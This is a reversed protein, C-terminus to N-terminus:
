AADKLRKREARESNTKVQHCAQCLPQLGTSPCFLRTLYGDWGEFAKPVSGVPIIHDVKVRDRTLRKSCHVCLRAEDKIKKREPSWRWIRRLASVLYRNPM